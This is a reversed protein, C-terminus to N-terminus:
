KVQLIFRNYKLQQLFLIISDNNMFNTLEKYNFKVQRNIFNIIDILDSPILLKNLNSKIVIKNDSIEEYDINSIVKFYSTKRIKLIDSQICCVTTMLHSNSENIKTLEMKLIDIYDVIKKTDKFIVTKSLKSDHPLALISDIILKKPTTPQFIMAISISYDDCSKVEHIYGKPLYLIDGKTLKFTNKLKLDDLNYNNAKDTTIFDYIKWIKSGEIQFTFIETEDNHIPLAQSNPPSLFLTVSDLITNLNVAIERAVSILEHTSPLFTEIERFQISAGKILTDNLEDISYIRKNVINLGRCNVNHLKFFDKCQVYSIIDNLLSNDSFSEFKKKKRYYEKGYFLNYFDNNFLM